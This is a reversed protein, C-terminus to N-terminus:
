QYKKMAEFLASRAKTSGALEAEDVFQLAKNTEGNKVAQEILEIFMAETEPQIAKNVVIATPAILAKAQKENDVLSTESVMTQASKKSSPLYEFALRFVGTATHPIPKDLYIRNVIDARGLTEAPAYPEALETAGNMAETTTLILLYKAKRGDSFMAPLEIKGLYRDVNLLSSSDYKITETGYVQMPKYQDDLLLATPVFVSNVVPASIAIKMVGNTEPLMFGKVFSKGTSFSFAPNKSNIEFDFKGPQTIAQYDLKSLSNCCLPAQELAEFAISPDVNQIAKTNSAGYDVVMSKNDACAATLLTLGIVLIKKM